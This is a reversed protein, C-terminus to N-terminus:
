FASSEGICTVHVGYLPISVALEGPVGIKWDSTAEIQSPHTAKSKATMLAETDGLQPSIAWLGEAEPDLDAIFYLFYSTVADDPHWPPTISKFVPRDSHKQKTNEYSGFYKTSGKVLKEGSDQEISIMECGQEAVSMGVSLIMMLMGALM